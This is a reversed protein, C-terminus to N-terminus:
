HALGDRRHMILLWFALVLVAMGSTLALEGACYRGHPNSPPEPEPALEQARPVPSMARAVLVGVPAQPHRPAVRAALIVVHLAAAVAALGFGSLCEPRPAAPAAFAATSTSVTVPSALPLLDSRSDVEDIRISNYNIGM